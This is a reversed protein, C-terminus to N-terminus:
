RLLLGVQVRNPPTYTEKKRTSIASPKIWENMWENLRKKNHDTQHHLLELTYSRSSQYIRKAEQDDLDYLVKLFFEDSIM